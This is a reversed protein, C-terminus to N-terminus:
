MEGTKESADAEEQEDEAEKEVVEGEESIDESGALEFSDLVRKIVLGVIYSVILVVLLVTLLTKLEYHMIFMAISTVAGALLMVISPIPKTKM